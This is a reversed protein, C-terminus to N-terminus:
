TEIVNSPKRALELRPVVMAAVFCVAGAVFYPFAPRWDFLMGGILPGVLFGVSRASQLLGFLEGQRPNPVLESCAANVTPNAVGGGIAFLTSALFLLLIPPTILGALPNLALGLGQALFAIRLLWPVTLRRSLWALFLGQVVVGLFAEYGFLLGFERQSYGFLDKILRAFTGELMALSFWAVVAILFLPRLRPFDKLIELLPRHPQPERAKEPSALADRPLCMATVILGLLSAAGACIGVLHNAGAGALLGGLVPGFILGSSV